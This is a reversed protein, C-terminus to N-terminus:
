DDHDIGGDLVQLAGRSAVPIGRRSESLIGPTDGIMFSLSFTSASLNAHDFDVNGSLSTSKRPSTETM